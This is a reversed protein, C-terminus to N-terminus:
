PWRSRCFGAVLALLWCGCPKGWPGHRKICRGRCRRGRKWARTEKAATGDRLILILDLGVLAPVAARPGLVARSILAPVACCCPLLAPCCRGELPTNRSSSPTSAGPFFPSTGDGGGAPHHVDSHQYYALSEIDRFEDDGEHESDSAAVDPPEISHNSLFGALLL